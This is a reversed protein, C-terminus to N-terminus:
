KGQNKPTKKRTCSKESVFLVRLLLNGISVLLKKMINQDRGPLTNNNSYNNEKM